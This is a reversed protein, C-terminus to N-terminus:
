PTVATWKGNVVKLIKDNDTANVRPLYPTTRDTINIQTANQDANFVDTFFMFSITNNDEKICNFIAYGSGTPDYEDLNFTGQPTVIVVFKNAQVAATIDSLKVDNAFLLKLNPTNGSVTGSFVAINQPVAGKGWQAGGEGDSEVILAEGIDGAAVTPLPAAVADWAGNNVGLIKGNDDANVAPLEPDRKAWAGKVVGLIDGNDESTVAPLVGGAGGAVSAVAELMDPITNINAVDSIDGGLAVYLGQLAAITNIM